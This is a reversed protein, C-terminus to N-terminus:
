VVPKPNWFFTYAAASLGGLIVLLGFFIALGKGVKSGKRQGEHIRLSGLDHQASGLPTAMLRTEKLSPQVSHNRVPSVRYKLIKRVLPGGEVEFSGTVVVFEPPKKGIEFLSFRSVKIPGHARESSSEYVNFGLGKGVDSYPRGRDAAVRQKPVTSSSAFFPSFCSAYTRRKM